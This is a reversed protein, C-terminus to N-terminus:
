DLRRSANAKAESSAVTTLPLWQDHRIQEISDVADQHQLVDGEAANMREARAEAARRM